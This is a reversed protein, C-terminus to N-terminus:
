VSQAPKDSHAQDTTADNIGQDLFRISGMMLDFEFCNANSCSAAVFNEGDERVGIVIVSILRADAASRLVDDISAADQFGETDKCMM